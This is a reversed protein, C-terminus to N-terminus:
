LSPTNGNILNVINQHIKDRIWQIVRLNNIMLKSHISQFVKSQLSYVILHVICIAKNIMRDTEQTIRKKVKMTITDQDEEKQKNQKKKMIM